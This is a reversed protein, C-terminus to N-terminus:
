IEKPKTFIIGNDILNEIDDRSMGLIKGFVYDLHQGFKPAPLFDRDPTKSLKSRTGMVKFSGLDPHVVKKFFKRKKLHPDQLLDKMNAAPGAAVGAQQLIQMADYKDRHITWREVLEDLEDRNKLRNHLTNFREQDIWDPNGIASCFGAWEEDTGVSIAVWEDDGKCRYAGHPAMSGSRNGSPGAIRSNMTYELIEPGIFNVASELFSVNVHQGEGTEQRHLLAAMFGGAAHAGSLPDIHDVGSRMPRDDDLYGTLSFFGCMPELVVGYTRYDSWPGEEGYANLTVLIIDPKIAKLDNYTFKLKKIVNVTYNTVVADSRKVLRNFLSSGEESNLNISVSLKNRNVQTFVASRNWPDEGAEGGIFTGDSKGRARLLDGLPPEVKIVEAGLDSLLEACHPGAWAHGVEIIRIGELPMQGNVDMVVGKKRKPM